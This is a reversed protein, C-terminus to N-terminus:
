KKSQNREEIEWKWLQAIVRSDHDGKAELERVRSEAYVRWLVPDKPEPPPALSM